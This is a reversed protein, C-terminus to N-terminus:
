RRAANLANSTTASCAAATRYQRAANPAFVTAVPASHSDAAKGADAAAKPGAWAEALGLARARLDQETEEPCKPVEM